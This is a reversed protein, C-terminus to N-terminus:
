FQFFYQWSLLIFLTPIFTSSFLFCLLSRYCFITFQFPIWLTLSLLCLSSFHECSLLWITQDGNPHTKQSLCFLAPSSWNRGQFVQHITSQPHLFFLPPFFMKLKPHEPIHWYIYGIPHQICLIPVLTPMRSIYIYLYLSVVRQNFILFITNSSITWSSRIPYHHVINQYFNISLLNASLASKIIYFNLVFLVLSPFLRSLILKWLTFM